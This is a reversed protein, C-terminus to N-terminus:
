VLQQITEAFHEEVLGAMDEGYNANERMNLILDKCEKHFEKLLLSKHVEGEKTKSLVLLMDQEKVLAVDIDKWLALPFRVYEWGNQSEIVYILHKQDSDMLVRKIPNWEQTSDLEQYVQEELFCLRIFDNKEKTQEIIFNVTSL